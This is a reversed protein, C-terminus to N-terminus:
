EPATTAAAEADIETDHRHHIRIHHQELELAGSAGQQHVGFEARVYGADQAAPTVHNKVHLPRVPASREGAPM